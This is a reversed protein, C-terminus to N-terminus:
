CINKITWWLKKIQRLYLKRYSVISGIIAIGLIEFCEKVLLRVLVVAKVTDNYEKSIYGYPNVYIYNNNQVDYFLNIIEGGMKNDLYSGAYM